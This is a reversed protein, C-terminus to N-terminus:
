THQEYMRNTTAEAAKRKKTSKRQGREKLDKASLMKPSTIMKNNEETIVLTYREVGREFFKRIMLFITHAFRVLLFQGSINQALDIPVNHYLSGLTNTESCFHAVRKSEKPVIVFAGRDLSTHLDPRLSIVNSVDDVITSGLLFINQNYRDMSNRQSWKYQSRPCLHAAEIYDQSGTVVCGHDRTRVASSLGSLSPPAPLTDIINSQSVSDCSSSINDWTCPFNGHPFSWHEFSYFLPYIYPEEQTSSSPRPVHFYYSKEHLIDDNGLMIRDKGVRDRTLYGNWAKGAVIACATHATGYHLGGGFKRDFAMLTLFTNRNDHGPHKFEIRHNPNNSFYEVPTASRNLSPDPFRLCSLVISESSAHDAM